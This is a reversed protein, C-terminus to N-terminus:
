GIAAQFMAASGLVVLGGILMQFTSALRPLTQSGAASALLVGRAVVSSCAVLGTLAATGLGMVVVAAIGAGRIDMQWAIILLFIAGTCPRIAVSMILAVSDRFSRLKAVDDRSPGHAHCGCTGAGHHHERHHGHHNGAHPRRLLPRAGRWVLVLGVLGIALYSTPALYNEALGTLRTASVEFLYLGGYVLLIAFATQALSSAAAVAVLRLISISTGLGVGGILYKGHGPGAAHVFGYAGAAALLAAYAGPDGTRLARIAAAMQNQFARQQEVIWSQLGTTDVGLLIAVCITILLIAPVALRM